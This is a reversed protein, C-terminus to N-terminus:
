FFFRLVEGGRGLARLLLFPGFRRDDSDDREHQPNQDREQHFNEEASSRQELKKEFEGARSWRCASGGQGHQLVREAGFVSCPNLTAAMRSWLPSIMRKDFL